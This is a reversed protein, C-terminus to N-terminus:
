DADRDRPEVRELQGGEIHWRGVADCVQLQARRSLDDLEDDPRARLFRCQDATAHKLELVGDAMRWTLRAEEHPRARLDHAAKKPAARRQEPTLSWRLVGVPVHGLLDLREGATGYVYLRTLHTGMQSGAEHSGLVVARAPAKVLPTADITRLPPELYGSSPLPPRAGRWGAETKLAIAYEAFGKAKLTIALGTEDEFPEFWAADATAAVAPLWAPPKATSPGPPCLRAAARMSRAKGRRAVVCRAPGGGVACVIPPTGDAPVGIVGTREGCGEGHLHLGETHLARLAGIAALAADVEPTIQAADPAAGAPSTGFLLALSLAALRLTPTTMPPAYGSTPPPGVAGDAPRLGAAIM